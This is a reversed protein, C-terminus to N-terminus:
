ITLMYMYMYIYMYMYMIIIIIIIIIIKIIHYTMTHRLNAIDFLWVVVPLKHTTLYGPAMPLLM